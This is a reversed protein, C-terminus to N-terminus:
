KMEKRTLVGTSINLHNLASVFQEFDLFGTKTKDRAEFAKRLSHIKKQIQLRSLNKKM